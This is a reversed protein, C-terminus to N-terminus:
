QCIMLSDLLLLAGVGTFNGEVEKTTLQTGPISTDFCMLGVLSACDAGLGVVHIITIQLFDSFNVLYHSTTAVKLVKSKLEALGIPRISTM